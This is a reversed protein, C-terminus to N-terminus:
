HSKPAFFSQVESKNKRTYLKGFDLTEKSKPFFFSQVKSKNKRTYLKGFNLTEKDWFGM